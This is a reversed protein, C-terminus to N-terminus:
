DYEPRAGAGRRRLPTARLSCRPLPVVVPEAARRRLELALGGAQEEARAVLVRKAFLPLHEFWTAHERFEVVRGIVIVTPPEHGAAAVRAPLDQLRAVVVRQSPTTGREIAAAPTAPDRGAAIVRAVIDELWATGMLIV